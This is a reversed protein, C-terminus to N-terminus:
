LLAFKNVVTLVRGRAQAFSVEIKTNEVYHGNIQNGPQLVTGHEAIARHACQQIALADEDVAAVVLQVQGLGVEDAADMVFVHLRTSVNDFGVCEPCVAKTQGAMTKGISHVVDIELASL